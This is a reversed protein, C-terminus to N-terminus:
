ILEELIHLEDLIKNKYYFFNYVLLFAEILASVEGNDYDELKFIGRNKFHGNQYLGYENDEDKEPLNNPESITFRNWQFGHREIFRKCKFGLSYKNIDWIDGNETQYGINDNKIGLIKVVPKEIIASLLITNLKM